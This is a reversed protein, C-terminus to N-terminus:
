HFLHRFLKQTIHEWSLHQRAYEHIVKKDFSRVKKLFDSLSQKDPSNLVFDLQRNLGFDEYSIIIPLGFFLYERVKLPAAQTMHKVDLRMPGIAFDCKKYLDYLDSGSLFGTFKVECLCNKCTVKSPDIDGVMYLIVHKKERFLNIIEQVGHWPVQKGVFIGALDGTRKSFDIRISELKTDYGNTLLLVNDKGSINKVYTALEPTFVVVCRSISYLLSEQFKNIKVLFFKYFGKKTAKLEFENNTNNEVILKVRFVAAVVLLCVNLIVGRIHYRYYIFGIDKKVLFSCVTLPFIIHNVFLRLVRNPIMPPSLLFCSPFLKDLANVQSRVKKHVGSDGFVENLIYLINKMNMSVESSNCSLKKLRKINM